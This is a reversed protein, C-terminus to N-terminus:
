KGFNSLIKHYAKILHEIHNDLTPPNSWFNDYANRGIRNLMESNKLLAIKDALDHSNGGTFWHGTEGNIIMDCAACTDPVIAPIGLAAAEAVVLGQTEYWLSPLILARASKVCEVVAERDLWGTIEFEPYSKALNEKLEGDGVFKLNVHAERAAEAALFLGKEPSLRGVIVFYDNNGPVACDQREIFIPNPVSMIQADSPLYNNLIDKSFDSISIFHKIANPTLGLRKQIMQRIVRYLKQAYGYKDCNSFVCSPSMAKLNCIENKPYNFFGGNPCVTFYDHLSIVIPYNKKIAARIVSSSLSKTWGHVHVITKQPEYHNLLEKMKRAARRNWLGQRAARFRNPDTLIEKQGTCVVEVDSAALDPDIPKVAALLVVKYGRSALARASSLAVLAAGGNIHAFDNVIIVSRDQSQNAPM